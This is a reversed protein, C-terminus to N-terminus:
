YFVVPASKLMATCTHFSFRLADCEADDRCGSVSTAIAASVEQSPDRLTTAKYIHDAIGTLTEVSKDSSLVDAPMIPPDVAETAAALCTFQGVADQAIAIMVGTGTFRLQGQQDPCGGLLAAAERFTYDPRNSDAPWDEDKPYANPHYKALMYNDGPNPTAGQVVPFRHDCSGPDFGAFAGLSALWAEATVQKAPGHWFDPSSEEVPTDDPDPFEMAMTYLQSTLIERELARIGGGNSELMDVLVQRALPLEIGAEYGLYRMFARDAATEYFTPQQAILRGPLRLQDWQDSSLDEIRIINPGNYDYDDPM